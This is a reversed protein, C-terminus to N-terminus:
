MQTGLMSAIGRGALRELPQLVERLTARDEASLTNLMAALRALRIAMSQCCVAEGHGTITVIAARLDTPDQSRSVLGLKELRGVALTITPGRVREHAALASMRMPGHERLVMLISLQALSLEGAPVGGRDRRGVVWFVEVLVHYLQQALEKVREAPWRAM